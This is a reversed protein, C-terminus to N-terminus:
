QAGPIDPITAAVGVLTIEGFGVRASTVSLTVGDSAALAIAERKVYAPAAIAIVGAAVLLAFVFFAFYLGKSSSRRAM